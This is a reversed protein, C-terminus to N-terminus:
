HHKTMENCVSSGGVYKGDSDLFRDPVFEHSTEGWVKTLFPELKSKNYTFLIIHKMWLLVLIVIKKNYIRFM